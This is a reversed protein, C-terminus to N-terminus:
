GEVFKRVLAWWSRGARVSMRSRETQKGLCEGPGTRDMRHMVLDWPSTLGIAANLRLLRFESKLVLAMMLLSREASGAMQILNHM